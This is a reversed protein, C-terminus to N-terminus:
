EAEQYAVLAEVYGVALTDSEPEKTLSALYTVEEGFWRLLDTETSGKLTHLQSLIDGFEAIITLAQRYNNRIFTGINAYKDTDWQKFHADISQLRHFTTAHRSLRACENSASFVRECGEFDELGAGMIYKPHHGLQCARNHAYGHMSPIVFQAKLTPGFSSKAATKKYACGIDYGVLKSGPYVNQLKALLALPYKASLLILDTIQPIDLSVFPECNM